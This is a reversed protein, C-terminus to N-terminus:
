WVRSLCRSMTHLRRFCLILRLKERGRRDEVGWRKEGRRIEWRRRRCSHWLKSNGQWCMGGVPSTDQKFRRSQLHIKQMAWTICIPATLTTASSAKSSHLATNPPATLHASTAVTTISATSLSSVHSHTKRNTKFLLVLLTSSRYCRFFFTGARLRFIRVM